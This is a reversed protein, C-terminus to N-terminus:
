FVALLGFCANAMYGKCPLVATCVVVRNLGQKRGAVHQELNISTTLAETLEDLARDMQVCWLLM